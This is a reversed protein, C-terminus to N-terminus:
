NEKKFYYNALVLDEQDDINTCFKDKVEIHKVKGGHLSNTKFLTSIKTFYMSGQRLYVKPYNQRGSFASKYNKSYYKVQNSYRHMLLPHEKVIKSTIVTDCSNNKLMKYAKIFDKKKRFPSTPQLLLLYKFKKLNVIKRLEHKVYDIAKSDRRAFKKARLKNNFSYFRKAIKLYKKSDTSFIIKNIFKLKKAFNISYYILPKGNFKKINKNKIGKSGSRAPIICIVNTM